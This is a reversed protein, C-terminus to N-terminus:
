GRVCEIKEGVADVGDTALRREDVGCLLAANADNRRHPRAVTEIHTTDMDQRKGIGNAARQRPFHAADQAPPAAAKIVRDNKGVFNRAFWQRM